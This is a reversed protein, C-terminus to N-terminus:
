RSPSLGARRCIETVRNQMAKAEASLEDAHASDLGLQIELKKEEAGARTLNQRLKEVEKQAKEARAALGRALADLEERLYKRENNLLEYNVRQRKKDVSQLKQAAAVMDQEAQAIFTERNSRLCQAFAGYQQDVAAQREADTFKLGAQASDFDGAASLVASYLELRMRVTAEVNEVHDRLPVHRVYLAEWVRGVFAAKATPDDLSLGAPVAEVATGIADLDKRCAERHEGNSDLLKELDGIQEEIASKSQWRQDDASWLSEVTTVATLKNVEKRLAADHKMIQDLYAQGEPWARRVPGRVRANRLYYLVADESPPPPSCGFIAVVPMAACAILFWRLAHRAM